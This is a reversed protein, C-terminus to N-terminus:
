FISMIYTNNIQYCSNGKSQALIEISDLYWLSLHEYDSLSGLRVGYAVPWLPSLKVSRRDLASKFMMGATTTTTDEHRQASFPGYFWSKM